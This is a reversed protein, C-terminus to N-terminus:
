SRPRGSTRPVIVLHRFRGEGESRTTVAADDKLALHIVRRDRPAMPDLAVARGTERARQAMRHALAALSQERRDRYGDVDVVIRGTADHDRFVIRNLLYELADLTQGHRGIVRAEDTGSVSLLMTGPDDGPRTTVECSLDLLRLTEVLVDRALREAATEQSVARLTVRVRSPSADSLVEVDVDAQAAGLRQLAVAIAEDVSAGEAEVSRV